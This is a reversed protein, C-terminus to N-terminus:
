RTTLPCGGAAQRERIARGPALLLLSRHLSLARDAVPLFPEGAMVEDRAGTMMVFAILAIERTAGDVRDDTKATGTVRLNMLQKGFFLELTVEVGHFFQAGM